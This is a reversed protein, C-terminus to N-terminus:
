DLDLSRTWVSRDNALLELYLGRIFVAVAVAQIPHILLMHWSRWYDPWSSNVHVALELHTLGCTIFFIVGGIRTSWRQLNIRPAIYAAIVFYGFFIIMNTGVFLLKM